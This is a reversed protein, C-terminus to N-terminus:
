EIGKPLFDISYAHTIKRNLVDDIIAIRYNKAFYLDKSVTNITGSFFIHGDKAVDHQAFIDKWEEPTMLDGVKGLQYPIWEGDKEVYCELKLEEFHDKVEDMDWVEPALVDPAAQKCKPVSFTELNRDSQDSGVTVYCKGDHYILVYEVEGCSEQNQVQVVDSTTALYNSIPYLTPSTTPAPIGLKGLEEIHGRVLEQDRGAYGGNFIRKVEVELNGKGVVTLNLVNKM